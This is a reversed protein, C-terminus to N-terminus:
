GRVLRLALRFPWLLLKRLLYMKRRYRITAYSIQGKLHHVDCLPVLHKLRINEKGLNRYGPPTHHAELRGGRRMWEWWCVACRQRWYAFLSQRLPEWDPRSMRERLEARLEDLTKM